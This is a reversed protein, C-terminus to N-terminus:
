LNWIWCLTFSLGASILWVILIPGFGVDPKVLGLLGAVALMFFLVALPLLFITAVIKM